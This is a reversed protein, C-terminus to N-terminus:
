RFSTAKEAEERADSVGRRLVASFADVALPNIYVAQRPPFNLYALFQHFKAGDL